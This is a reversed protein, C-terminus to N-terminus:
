RSCSEVSRSTHRDRLWLEPALDLEFTHLQDQDFILGSDGTQFAAAEEAPAAEDADPPGDSPGCSAAIVGAGVLCAVSRRRM